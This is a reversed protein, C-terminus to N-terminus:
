TDPILISYVKVKYEVKKERVYTLVKSLKLVM